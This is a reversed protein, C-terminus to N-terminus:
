FWHCIPRSVARAHTGYLHYYMAMKKKSLSMPSVVHISAGIIGGHVVVRVVGTVSQFRKLTTVRITDLNQNVANRVQEFFCWSCWDFWGVWCRQSHFLIHFPGNNQRETVTTIHGICRACNITSQIM